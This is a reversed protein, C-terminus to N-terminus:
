RPRPSAESAMIRLLRRYFRVADVLAPLALREDTGHVRHLDGAGLVVPLFRYVDDAVREYKSSVGSVDDLKFLVIQGEVAALMCCFLLLCAIRIM